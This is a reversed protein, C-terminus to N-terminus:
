IIKQNGQHFTKVVVFLKVVAVSVAKMELMALVKGLCMRLVVHFVSYRYLSELAFTRSTGTLWWEPWPWFKEYDDGWAETCETRETTCTRAM